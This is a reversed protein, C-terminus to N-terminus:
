IYERQRWYFRIYSFLAAAMLLLSLLMLVLSVVNRPMLIWLPIAPYLLATATKGLYNSPIVFRGKGLYLFAGAGIMFSEKLAVLLTVWLPITGGVWLTILTTLLMLKDALPDLVTGLPTVMRFRRAIYGDLLDTVGATLFVIVAMLHSQPHSSFYAIPFAPVLFLRLTTLINSTHKM